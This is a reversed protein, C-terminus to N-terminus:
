IDILDLRSKPPESKTPIYFYPVLKNWEDDYNPYINNVWAKKSSKIEQGDIRLLSVQRANTEKFSTIEKIYLGAQIDKLFEDTFINGLEKAKTDLLMGVELDELKTGHM